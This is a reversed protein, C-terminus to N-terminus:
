KKVVKHGNTIYIGAPLQELSGNIRIGQLNYVADSVKDNAIESVGVGPRDKGDVLKFTLTQADNTHGYMDNSMWLSDGIVHKEITITYTGNYKPESRTEVLFYSLEPKTGYAKRLVGSVEYAGEGDYNEKVTVNPETAAVAELNAMEVNFYFADLQKEASIEGDANPKTPLSLNFTLDEMVTPAVTIVYEVPNTNTGTKTEDHNDAASIAGAGFTVKVVTAETAVIAPDFTLTLTNANDATQEPNTVSFKDAELAEKNVTVTTKEADATVYALAPFTFTVEKLEGTITGNLPMAVNSFDLEEEEGAITYHLIIEDAFDEWSQYDDTFSTIAGEGITIVYNGPATQTEKFNITLEHDEIKCRALDVDEGNLSATIVSTDGAALNPANPFTVTISSLETVEGEEPDVTYDNFNIEVDDGGGSSSIMYRIYIDDRNSAIESMDENYGTLSNENIMLYYEGGATQTEDFTVTLVNKKAKATIPLEDGFNYMVMIGDAEAIDIIAVNPFTVTITSLEEVTTEAPDCEYDEFNIAASASITMAAVTAFTLLQKKM